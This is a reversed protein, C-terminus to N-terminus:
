RRVEELAAAARGRDFDNDITDLTERYAEIVAADRPLHPVFETLLTAADFDSSIDRATELAMQWGAPTLEANDALETLTLRLDFDSSIDRAASTYARALTDSAGVRHAAETLVTRLDFDSSIENGAVALTRAVIEDDVDARTLLPQLALRMDFDSSITAALDLYSAAAEPSAPMSAGVHELVTRVDFDSSITEGAELLAAFSTGTPMQSDFVEILTTRVDFDSSMNDATMTMLREFSAAAIQATHAYEVTYVRQAFDSQILAIEDLLGADGRNAILWAVREDANIATERLVIPMIEAVFRDAEPGWPQEDDEVFFQREITGEPSTFLVRRDVGDRRMSIDFSGGRDLSTVGSGDPELDVEGDAKVRLSYNGDDLRFNMSDGGFDWGTAGNRVATAVFFLALGILIVYNM